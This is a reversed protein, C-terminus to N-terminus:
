CLHSRHTHLSVLQDPAGPTEWSLPHSPAKKPLHDMAPDQSSPSLMTMTTSLPPHTGSLACCARWGRLWPGGSLM